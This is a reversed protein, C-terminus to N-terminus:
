KGHYAQSVAYSDEFWNWLIVKGDKVKVRLAWTFEKTQQNSQTALGVMRGYFSAVNGKAFADESEWKITKFNAGFAPMFKELIQKKGKWPGIWPMRSDGENQWVMDDHMLSVMKDMDGQTMAQMYSMAVKMTEESQKDATAIPASTTCGAMGIAMVCFAVVIMKISLIKKLYYM